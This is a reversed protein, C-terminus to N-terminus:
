KNDYKEELWSEKRKEDAEGRQKGENEKGERGGRKLEEEIKNIGCM